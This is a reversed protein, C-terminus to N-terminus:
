EVRWWNLPTGDDAYVNGYEWGAGPTAAQWSTMIAEIAEFGVRAPVTVVIFRRHEPAEVLGEYSRFADRLRQVDEASFADATLAQIAINGGRRLVQFHGDPTVQIVDGAACGYVLGPTSAVQYVDDQMLTAPVQEHVLEGASNTGAVLAVHQHEGTPFPM